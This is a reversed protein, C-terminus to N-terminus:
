SRASHKPPVTILVDDYGFLFDSKFRQPVGSFMGITVDIRGLDIQEALDIRTV